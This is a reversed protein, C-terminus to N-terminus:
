HRAESSQARNVKHFTGAIISPITLPPLYETSGHFKGSSLFVIRAVGVLFKEEVVNKLIRRDVLFPQANHVARDARTEKARDQHELDWDWELKKSPPQTDRPRGSMLPPVPSLIPPTPLPFSLSSSAPDSLSRAILRCTIEVRSPKSTRRTRSRRRKNEEAYSLRILTRNLNPQSHRRLNLDVSNWVWWGVRASHTERGGRQRHHGFCRISGM